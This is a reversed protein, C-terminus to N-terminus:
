ATNNSHKDGLKLTKQDNASATQLEAPETATLTRQFVAIKLVTTTLTHVRFQYDCLYTATGQAKGALPGSM